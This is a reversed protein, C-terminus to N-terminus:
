GDQVIGTRKFHKALFRLSKIRIDKVIEESYNKEKGRENLAKAIKYDALSHAGYFYALVLRQVSQLRAVYFGITVYADLWEGGHLPSSGAATLSQEHKKEYDIGKPFGLTNCFYFELAKTTSSFCIERSVTNGESFQLFVANKYVLKKM